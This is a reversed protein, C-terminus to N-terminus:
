LSNLINKYFNENQLGKSTEVVEHGNYVIVTPISMIGLKMILESNEGNDVDLKVFTVNEYDDSM